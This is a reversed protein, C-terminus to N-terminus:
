AALADGAADDGAGAAGQEGLSAVALARILAEKTVAGKEMLASLVDGDTVERPQPKAVGEMAAAVEAEVDAGGGDAAGGEAGDEEGEGAAQQPTSCPPNSIPPCATAPRMSTCCNGQLPM